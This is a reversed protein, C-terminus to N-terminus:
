RRLDCVKEYAWDTAAGAHGTTQIGLVVTLATLGAVALRKARHRVPGTHVM